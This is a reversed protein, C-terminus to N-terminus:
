KEYITESIYDMTFNTNFLESLIKGCFMRLQVFPSMITNDYFTNTHLVINIINSYAPINIPKFNFYLINFNINTYKEKIFQELELMEYYLVDNFFDHRYNPDYLYDENFFIFYIKKNDNMISKLREIRRKYEEIGIAVNSNFHAISFDYKNCFVNNYVDPIFDEFNNELVNKIKKPFVPITWDFPLSFKRLNAHQCAIATGCRNGIPVVYYDNVIGLNNPNNLTYSFVDM